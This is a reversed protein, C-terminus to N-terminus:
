QFVNANQIKWETLKERHIAPTVVRRSGGGIVLGLFEM